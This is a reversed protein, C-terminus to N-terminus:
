SPAPAPGRRAIWHARGDDMPPQDALLEPPLTLTVTAGQGEAAALRIDVGHRTALHGAVYHGLYSSPAVTFSEEGALRRNARAVEGPPMGVGTDVIAMVYGEVRRQGVITVRQDRHSFALANEVLEALLHALDSAAAGAVLAAELHEVVVREYGEVEGLAARVVDVVPIPAAWTRPPEVGALVLLSEANRRMRTALHDLEFLSALTGPDAEDRELHTIFDLQRSLLNQNRRGLNVFSDAINRRLVAQEVALDVAALQVSTLADAVDRVEDHTRVVVPPVEPVTVDEGLPRSLVEELVRPLRERAVERAQRTLSRLPRVM